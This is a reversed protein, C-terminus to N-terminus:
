LLSNLDISDLDVDPESANGTSASRTTSLDPPVNTKKSALEKLARQYAEKQVKETYADIDGIESMKMDRKAMEYASVAPLPSNQAEYYLAPNKTAMDQFHDMVEDYDSHEKRAFSESMENRVEGIMKQMVGVPNEHFQQEVPVESKKTTQAQLAKLQQELEQRKNREAKTAAILGEIQKDHSEPPEGSQEGTDEPKSESAEVETQEEAITETEEVAAEDAEAEDLAAFEDDYESM